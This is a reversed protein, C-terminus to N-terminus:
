FCFGGGWKVSLRNEGSTVILPVFSKPACKTKKAEPYARQYYVRFVRDVCFM